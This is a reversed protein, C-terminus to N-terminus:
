GGEGGEEAGLEEGRLEEGRRRRRCGAAALRTRAPPKLRVAVAASIVAM